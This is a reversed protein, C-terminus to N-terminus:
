GKLELFEDRICWYDSCKILGFCKIKTKYKHDILYWSTKAIKQKVIDAHAAINRLNYFYSKLLNKKTNHFCIFNTKLHSQLSYSLYENQVDKETALCQITLGYKKKIRRFEKGKRVDFKKNLLDGNEWLLVIKEYFDAMEKRTFKNPNVNM